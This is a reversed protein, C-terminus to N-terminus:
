LPMPVLMTRATGAAIVVMNVNSINFFAHWSSCLAPESGNSSSYVSTALAAFVDLHPYKGLTPKWKSRAINLWAEEHQDNSRQIYVADRVPNAECCSKRSAM